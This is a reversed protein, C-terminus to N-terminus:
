ARTCGSTHLIRHLDSTSDRRAFVRMWVVFACILETMMLMCCWCLAHTHRLAPTHAHRYPITHTHTDPPPPPPPKGVGWWLLVGV